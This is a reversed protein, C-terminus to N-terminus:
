NPGIKTSIHHATPARISLFRQTFLLSSYFLSIHESISGLKTPDVLSFLWCFTPSLVTTLPKHKCEICSSFHAIPVIHPKTNTGQYWSFHGNCLFCKTLM